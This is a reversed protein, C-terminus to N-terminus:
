QGLAFNSYYFLVTNVAQVCLLKSGGVAVPCTLEDPSHHVYVRYTGPPPTHCSADLGLNPLTHLLTKVYHTDLLLQQNGMESLLKQRM